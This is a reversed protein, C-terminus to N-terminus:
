RGGPQFTPNSYNPTPVMAPKSGSEDPDFLHWLATGLIVAAGVALGIPGFSAAAGAVALDDIGATAVTEGVEAGTLGAEADAATEAGDAVNEADITTRSAANRTAAAEIIDTKGADGTPNQAISKISSGVSQVTERAFTGIRSGVNGQGLIEETGLASKPVSAVEATPMVPVSAVEATPMVPVRAVGQSALQEYNADGFKVLGGQYSGEAMPDEFADPLKYSFAPNEFTSSFVEAKPASAEIDSAANTKLNSATTKVEDALANARINIKALRGNASAMNSARTAVAETDTGTIPKSVQELDAKASNYETRLGDFRTRLNGRSVVDTEGIEDIAADTASKKGTFVNAASDSVKGGLKELADMVNKKVADLTESGKDKLYGVLKETVYPGTLGVATEAEGDKEAREPDTKLSEMLATNKDEQVQYNYNSLSQGYDESM